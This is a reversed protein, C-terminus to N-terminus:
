RLIGISQAVSINPLTKPDAVSNYFLKADMIGDKGFKVFFQETLCEKLSAITFKFIKSDALNAVTDIINGGLANGPAISDKFFNNAIKQDVANNSLNIDNINGGIRIDVSM